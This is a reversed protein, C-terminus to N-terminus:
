RGDKRRKAAISREEQTTFRKYLRSVQSPHMGIKMGYDTQNIGSNISDVLDKIDEVSLRGNYYKKRPELELAQGVPWGRRLRTLITNPKIKLQEGWEELIKIDGNYDIYNNATTNRAQEVPTAWKCNAKTYNGNVDIRDLSMDNPREGMDKYFNIFDKKWRECVKIGRGGYYEYGTARPNYCRSIMNRYTSEERPYTTRYSKYKAAIRREDATKGASHCKKCLVQLGDLEIFMRSIVEDWSVFGTKPNIVPDIHDVYVNSVRKGKEKISAPVVKGCAACLYKGRSVRAAKKAEQIPRWRMTARRLTSKIFSNFRAQSWMGGNFPKDVRKGM